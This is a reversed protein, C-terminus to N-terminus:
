GKVKKLIDVGVMIEGSSHIMLHQPCLWDAGKWYKKYEKTNLKKWLVKPLYFQFVMMDIKTLTKKKFNAAKAANFFDKWKGEFNEFDKQTLEVDITDVVKFKKGLDKVPFFLNGVKLMPYSEM